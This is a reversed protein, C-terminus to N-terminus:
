GACHPRRGIRRRRAARCQRVGSEAARGRGNPDTATRVVVDNELIVVDAAVVGDDDIRFGAEKDRIQPRGVTDLHLTLSDAGARIEGITVVDTDTVVLEGEFNAWALLRRM